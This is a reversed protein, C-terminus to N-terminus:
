QFRWTEQLGALSGPGAQAAAERRGPARSSGAMVIAGAVTPTTPSPLM